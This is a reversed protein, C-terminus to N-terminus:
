ENVGTKSCPACGYTKQQIAALDVNYNDERPKDMEEKDDEAMKLDGM